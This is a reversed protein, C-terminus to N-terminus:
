NKSKIYEYVNRYKLNAPEMQIAKMIAKIANESDGNMDRAWSLVFYNLATPELAM